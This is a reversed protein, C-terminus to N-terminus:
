NVLRHRQYGLDLRSSLEKEMGLHRRVPAASGLPRRGLVFSNLALPMESWIRHSCQGKLIELQPTLFVATYILFFFILVVQQLNRLKQM